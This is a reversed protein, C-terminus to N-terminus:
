LTENTPFNNNQKLIDNQEIISEALNDNGLLIQMVSPIFEKSFNLLNKFPILKTTLILSM